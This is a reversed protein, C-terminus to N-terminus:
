IGTISTNINKAVLNYSLGSENEDDEDKESEDTIDTELPFMATTLPKVPVYPVKSLSKLFFKKVADNLSLTDSQTEINAKPMIIGADETIGVSDVQGKGDVAFSGVLM